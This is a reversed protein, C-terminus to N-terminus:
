RREYVTYSFRRALTLFFKGTPRVLVDMDDLLQIRVRVIQKDPIISYSLGNVAASYYIYGDVIRPETIPMVALIKTMALSNPDVNSVSLDTM